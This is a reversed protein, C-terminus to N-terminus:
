LWIVEVGLKAAPDRFEEDGTVLPAKLEVALALAFSDAYSLGGRSKILAAERVKEWDVPVIEIKDELFVYEVIKEAEKIGFRRLLIYYIEGLNLISLYIQVKNSAIMGAVKASNRGQEILSLIAFADFVVKGHM